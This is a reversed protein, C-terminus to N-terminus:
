VVKGILGDKDMGSVKVRVLMGPEASGAPVAVSLYNQSLGKRLGNSEGGEIVIDLESGIFQQSFDLNKKEGIQRLRAARNKIVVGSVQDAM